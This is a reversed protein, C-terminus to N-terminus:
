RRVDVSGDLIQLLLRAVKVDDITAQSETLSRGVIQACRNVRGSKRCTYCYKVLSKLKEEESCSM